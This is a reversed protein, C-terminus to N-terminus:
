GAAPEAPSLHATLWDVLLAIAQDLHGELSHPSGALLAVQSGPPLLPLGRRANALSQREEDDGDGDILLVPCRVRGFLAAQDCDALAELLEASAVVAARARGEGQPMVVRGTRELESMQAATLYDHWDYHMAATPAGTTAITIVPSPAAALCVRGGLSHGYLALRRYGLSRAHALVAQLDDVQHGLTLLDDDSDGCGAFDFALSAIGAAALAAAVAPFRGRSGRDSAFGHAMVVLADGAAPTLDGVLRLDRANCFTVRSM